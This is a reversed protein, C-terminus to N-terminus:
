CRRCSYTDVFVAINCAIRDFVISQDLDFILINWNIAIIMEKQNKRINNDLVNENM